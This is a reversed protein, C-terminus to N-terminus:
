DKIMELDAGLTKLKPVFNEYWREIYEVNTIFTEGEAILWAIIMAAGARLDWSTVTTNRAKLETKGFILAQHPNLIATHGWLKDLEVLFNLRWEFLVEHIKSIWEAQSLLIAFPSQLDTPFGPFINTQLEIANIEYARYVRAVDNWLDEIKVWAERLKEIFSYLDEQRADEIDIYDKAALAWIVMFTGSEIYDAIVDFEVINELKEVWNIHIHHTHNIVIDAWAANLFDVLNLVHPELASMKIITHGARFVNAVILNETATVWFWANIIKDWTELTGSIDIHSDIFSVTYGLAQLWDLHSDIPRKWISCGGPFPISITKFRHLLPWLLLISARIKKIKSYDFHKPELNSNDLFLTNWEFKYEVWIDALIDLFTLVDGIKPVNHLTVKGNILLSAAILPLAANKSWSIKVKGSLLNWWKVKIM